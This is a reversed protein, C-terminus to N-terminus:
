SNPLHAADSVKTFLEFELEDLESDTMLNCHPRANCTLFDHQKSINTSVLGRNWNRSTLSVCKGIEVAGRFNAYHRSM